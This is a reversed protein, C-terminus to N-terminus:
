KTYQKKYFSDIINIIKTVLSTMEKGCKIKRHIILVKRLNSHYTEIALNRIKFQKKLKSEIDFFFQNNKVM